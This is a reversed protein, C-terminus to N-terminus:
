VTSKHFTQKRPHISLHERNSNNVTSTLQYICVKLVETSSHVTFDKCAPVRPTRYLGSHMKHCTLKCSRVDQTTTKIYVGAYNFPLRV